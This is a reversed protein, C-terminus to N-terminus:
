LAAKVQPELSVKNGRSYKLSSSSINNCRSRTNSDQTSPHRLATLTAPQPVTRLPQLRTISPRRHRPTVTHICPSRRPTTDLTVLHLTDM